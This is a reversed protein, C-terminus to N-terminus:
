RGRGWTPLYNLGIQSAQNSQPLGLCIFHEPLSDWFGLKWRWYNVINTNKCNGTWPFTLFKVEAVITTAWWYHVLWYCNKNSVNACNDNDVIKNPVHKQVITTTLVMAPLNHGSLSTSSTTPFNYDVVGTTRSADVVPQKNLGRCIEHILTMIMVIAIRRHWSLEAQKAGDQTYNEGLTKQQSWCQHM